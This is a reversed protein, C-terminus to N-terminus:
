GLNSSEQLPLISPHPVTYRSVIWQVFALVNYDINEYSMFKVSNGTQFVEWKTRKMSYM